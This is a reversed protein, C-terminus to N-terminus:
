QGARQPREDAITDPHWLPALGHEARLENQEDLAAPFGAAAFSRVTGAATGVAVRSPSWVASPAPSEIVVWLGPDPETGMGHWTFVFDGVRHAVVDEPLGAAIADISERREAPPAEALDAIAVGGATVDRASTPSLRGVFAAAGLDDELLRASHDPWASDRRTRHILASTIAQIADTEAAAQPQSPQWRGGAVVPGMTAVMLGTYVLVALVIGLAPGTAAAFGARLPSVGEGHGRRLMIGFSAIWWIWVIYNLCPIFSLVSAGSSYLVAQMTRGFGQTRGGTMLLVLHAAGAWLFVMVAFMLLGAAAMVALGLLMFGGMPLLGPGGGGGATLGLMVAMFALPIALSLLSVMLMTALAFNWARGLPSHLPTQEILLGPKVMAWGVTRLWRGPLSWQESLWPNNRRRTQEEPVGEAPLLVMEDMDVPTQCTVCNFSRPTLHGAPSTGYYPQNCHPCCFRVSGPVFDFEGPAFPSGCEPCARSRLNWLAYNCTKCYM